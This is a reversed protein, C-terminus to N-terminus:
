EDNFLGPVRSHSRNLPAHPVASGSWIPGASRLLVVHAFFAATNVNSAAAVQVELLNHMSQLVYRNYLQQLLSVLVTPQVHTVGMAQLAAATDEGLLQLCLGLCMVNWQLEKPLLAISWHGSLETRGYAVPLVAVQGLVKKHHLVCRNMCLGSALKGCSSGCM